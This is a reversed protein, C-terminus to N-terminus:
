VEDIQLSQYEDEYDIEDYNKYELLDRDQNNNCQHYISQVQSLIPYFQLINNSLINYNLTFLTRNDQLFYIRNDNQISLMHNSCLHLGMEPICHFSRSCDNRKAMCTYKKDCYSCNNKSKLWKLENKLHYTKYFNELINSFNIRKSLERIAINRYVDVEKNNYKIPISYSWLDICTSIFLNNGYKLQNLFRLEIILNRFDKGLRDIIPIAYFWEFETYNFLLLLLYYNKKNALKYCEYNILKNYNEKSSQFFM